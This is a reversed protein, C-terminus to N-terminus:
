DARSVAEAVMAALEELPELLVESVDRALELSQAIGAVTSRANNIVLRAIIMLDQRLAFGEPDIRARWRSRLSDLQREDMAALELLRHRETDPLSDMAVLLGDGSDASDSLATAVQEAKNMERLVTRNLDHLRLRDVGAPTAQDLKSWGGISRALDALELPGARTGPTEELSSALKQAPTATLSKVRDLLEDAVRRLKDLKGEESLLDDALVERKRDTLEGFISQLAEHHSLVGNLKALELASEPLAEHPDEVGLAALQLRTEEPELAPRRYASPRKAPQPVQGIPTIPM